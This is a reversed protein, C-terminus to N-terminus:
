RGHCHKYKKPRGDPKKAGCPCPENRGIKKAGPPRLVTQSMVNDNGKKRVTVVVDSNVADTKQGFQGSEDDNNRENFNQELSQEARQQSIRRTQDFPEVPAPPASQIEIRLLVQGVEDEIDKLLRQFIHYAAQKYEVLPDKQGYGKLGISHRLHDMTNLHGIWFTDIVRLYVRKELECLAESPVNEFKKIYENKKEGLLELVETHLNVVEGANNKGKLNLIQRRKQYIVERHKNAVDDYEVLHKRIDFNHGEVKKQASEISRSIVKNQIPLNDPLGLRDMMNKLRDGGFIRMLDDEMSVFFQSEGLDGQRGSRGRLQNDIRRAEHRETGIVFLGSLEKVRKSEKEWEEISRNDQGLKEIGIDQKSKQSKVKSKQSKVKSKQSITPPTGGLIIDVGRGAMNTAVTVAGIRGAQAIVKAERQHKKANLINHKIGVRRLLRALEENKEVSITGILIPQGLQHRKKIEDIIANYKSETTKYIKDSKDVRIMERHTPVVVVDLKYIKYFEEAETAATGTMGSLKEYMRFFNQFSITALTDSERQINVGEKAEIAQHLGESYRRGPMLRGTFEDVILVEDDKVVYDKNRHFLFQAKLAEELHHVLRLNETDYLNKVSLAQEVKEIGADLIAATRAKEDLTFDEDIKLNKVIQSFRQYDASSEVTPASIILPTRAEDILISDVEDVIAFHLDRQSIQSKDVAMNDRLFDFGFENNTGYTIDAQYAESRSCPRLHDWTHDSFEDDDKKEVIERSFIYSKDHEISSVTLGLFDYIQGMWQAQFKALFDNVTILHSGKSNLANLYLALTASLTKGEGTKQEAIKGEHLAIGAMIQVDYHRQGISRKSAERVLAFAQPLIEELSKGNKIQEKFEQTKRLFDSDALNEMEPELFNIQEVIKQLRKLEKQNADGFIASLFKM